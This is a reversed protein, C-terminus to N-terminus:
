SVGRNAAARIATRARGLDDTVTSPIPGAFSDVYLAEVTITLKELAELLEPAAAILRAFDEMDEKPWGPSISAIEVGSGEAVIRPLDWWRGQPRVKWGNIIEM